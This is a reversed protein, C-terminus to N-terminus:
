SGTIAGVAESFFNLNQLRANLSQRSEERGAEGGEDM